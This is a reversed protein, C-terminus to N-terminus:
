TFQYRDDAACGARPVGTTLKQKVLTDLLGTGDRACHRRSSRLPAPTIPFNQDFVNDPDYLAKLRRLRTLTEGPFADDLREPRPDTDFSLYLGNM